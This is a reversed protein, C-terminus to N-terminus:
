KLTVIVHVHKTHVIGQLVGHPRKRGKFTHIYQILSNQFVHFRFTM